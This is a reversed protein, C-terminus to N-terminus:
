GLSITVSQVRHEDLFREQEDRVQSTELVNAGLWEKCIPALGEALFIQVALRALGSEEADCFVIRALPYEAFDQARRSHMM